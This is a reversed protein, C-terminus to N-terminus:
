PKSSDRYKPDGKIRVTREKGSYRVQTLRAPWFSYGDIQRHVYDAATIILSTNYVTMSAGDGGANAWQDPEVTTELLNIIADAREQPDLDDIQQGGQSFPSTGGGSGGGSASQIASQLNFEPANDFNPVVFLLDAIDYIEVRQNRNLETKPGFEISGSDTFQWTYDDGPEEILNTRELVRELVTIAPINKVRITIPTEPDIGSVSAINENLYIPELDAGTIDALFNFIDEVAQDEVDLTITKSMKRLNDRKAEKTYSDDDSQIANASQATPAISIAAFTLGALLAVSASTHLIPKM